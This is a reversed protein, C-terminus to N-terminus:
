VAGAPLSQLGLRRMRDGHQELGAAIAGPTARYGSIHRALLDRQTVREGRIAWDTVAPIELGLADVIAREIPTRVQGLMEPGTYPAPAQLGLHRHIGAVVHQLLANSPHNITHFGRAHVAPDVIVDSAVVDLHEDHERRQLEARSDAALERLLEPDPAWSDIFEAARDLDWGNAACHLFRLDDYETLPPAYGALRVNAQFPFLGQYYLAVTRVVRGRVLSAMEEAGLGMDRFGPKVPHCVFVAVHPLIQRIQDAQTATIEHVAPLPITRYPFSPAADLMLRLAEAQCNGYVIAVDSAKSPDRVLADFRREAVTREVKGKVKRALTRADM